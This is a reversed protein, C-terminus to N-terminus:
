PHFSISYDHFVSVDSDSLLEEESTLKVASVFGHHHLNIRPSDLMRNMPTPDYSIRNLDFHDEDGSILGSEEPDVWFTQHIGVTSRAFNGRFPYVTTM